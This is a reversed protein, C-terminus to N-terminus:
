QRRVNIITQENHVYVHVSLGYLPNYHSLIVFLYEESFSNNDPRDMVYLIVVM